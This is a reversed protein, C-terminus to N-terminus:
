KRSDCGDLANIVERASSRKKPLKVSPPVPSGAYTGFAAARGGETAEDLKTTLELGLISRRHELDDRLDDLDRLCDFMHTVSKVKLDDSVHRTKDQLDGDGCRARLRVLQAVVHKIPVRLARRAM